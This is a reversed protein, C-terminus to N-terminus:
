NGSLKKMGKSDSPRYRYVVDESVVNKKIYEAPEGKLYHNFFDLLYQNISKLVKEGNIDGIMSKRIEETEYPLIAADSFVFHSSRPFSLFAFDGNTLKFNVTNGLNWSENYDSQMLMFPQNIPQDIAGGFQFCDFNVGAKVRKDQVCIEGSVAGGISQGFVGLQQLNMRDIVEINEQKNQSKEFYDIVFRSDATWLSVIKNFRHLMKHYYRTVEEIKEESDRAKWQFMDAVVLQLYAWQARKKKLYAEEGDPFHMYPQEYPHNVSCVIYGWSALEEMMSLYLDPLGFYFGPNFILVPYSAENLNIEANTYSHSSAKGLKAIWEKSLKKTKFTEYIVDLPYDDIYLAPNQQKINQAPYWVKVYVKRFQRRKFPDKRSFDTLYLKTVGVQYPGKPTMLFEGTEQAFLTTIFFVLWLFVVYKKRM